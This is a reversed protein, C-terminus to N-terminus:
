QIRDETKPLYITRELAEMAATGESEAEKRAQEQAKKLREEDAKRDEETYPDMSGVEYAVEIHIWDPVEEGDETLAPSETVIYRMTEMRLKKPEIFPKVSDGM